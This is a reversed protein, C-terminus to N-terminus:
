ALAKNEQRHGSYADGEILPRGGIRGANNVRASVCEWKWAKHSGPTEQESRRTCELAVM